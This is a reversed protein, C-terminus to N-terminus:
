YVAITSYLAWSVEIAPAAAKDDDDAQAIAAASPNASSVRADTTTSSEPQIVSFWAVLGLAALVLLVLLGTNKRMTFDGSHVMYKRYIRAHRREVRGTLCLTM